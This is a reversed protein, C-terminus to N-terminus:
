GSEDSAMQMLVGHIYRERKDALMHRLRHERRALTALDIIKQQTSLPPLLIPMEELVHKSIKKQATGELHSALYAQAVPQNLYWVLYEPLLNDATIRIRLLPAALTALGIDQDVFAATNTVGRSRFIIDGEQLQHHDSVSDLSIHVLTLANVTNEATLDRMQVVRVQGDKDRELRSRFTQGMSVSAIAGLKSKM